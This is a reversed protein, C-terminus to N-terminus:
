FVTWYVFNDNENFQSGASTSCWYDVKTKSINCVLQIVENDQTPNTEYITYNSYTKSDSDFPIAVFLGPMFNVTPYNNHPTLAYTFGFFRNTYATTYEGTGECKLFLGFKPAFDFRKGCVGCVM